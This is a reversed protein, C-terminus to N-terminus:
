YKRLSNDTSRQDSMVYEMRFNFWRGPAPLGPIEEYRENFVNRISFVTKLKGFNRAIRVTVPTRSGGRLEEEYRTILSCNSKAFLPGTITATVTKDLPNLSYKSIIGKRRKVSQTLIMANISSNWKGLIAFQGKIEVGNTVLSGHNAVKWIDEGSNKVWDIVDTSKRGFIFIGYEADNGKIDFGASINLAHESKLEPSGMNAPSEYFLETYTPSRFSKEARIKVKIKDDLPLVWGL